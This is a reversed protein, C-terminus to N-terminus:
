EHQMVCLASLTVGKLYQPPLWSVASFPVSVTVSISDGFAANALSASGNGNDALAVTVNAPAVNATTQLFTQVNSTVQSNTSGQNIALRAGNRAATELIQSVMIGRGVEVIGLVASILLPLTLAMEVAATGRRREQYPLKGIKRNRRISLM